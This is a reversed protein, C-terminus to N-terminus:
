LGVLQAKYGKDRVKNLLTTSNTTNSNYAILLLHAKAKTFRPAVVGDLDRLQEVLNQKETDDIKQDLHILIDTLQM